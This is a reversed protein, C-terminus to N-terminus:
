RKHLYQRGWAILGDVCSDLFGGQLLNLMLDGQKTQGALCALNCASCCNFATFSDTCAHFDQKLEMLLSSTLKIVKLNTV